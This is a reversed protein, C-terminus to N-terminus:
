LQSFGYNQVHSCLIQILFGLFVFVIFLQAFGLDLISFLCSSVLFMFIFCAQIQFSSCLLFRLPKSVKGVHVLVRSCELFSFEELAPNTLLFNTAQSWSTWAIGELSNLDSPKLCWLVERSSVRSFLSWLKRSPFEHIPLQYSSVLLDLSDSITFQPWYTQSM